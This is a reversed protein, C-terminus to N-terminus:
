SARSMAYKAMGVVPAHTVDETLKKVIHIVALARAIRIATTM